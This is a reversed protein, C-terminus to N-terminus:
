GAMDESFVVKGYGAVEAEELARTARSLLEDQSTNDLKYAVVGASGSLNLKVGSTELELPTWAIRTQLKEMTEKASVGSVDPLLFSFVGNSFHAMLDEERLYQKLLLAVRRLAENRIQPSSSNIVGMHDVNMVALSLPYTNRKARSMEEGLRQMFYRKNYVGTQEDIIGFGSVQETPTQIYTALFALGIGFVLGLIGGLVLNLPKNPRIASTPLKAQDLPELAFAEYRNKILNITEAGVQNTFDRVVRQESGQATIKLVTTGPLLQSQANLTKKIEPSLGLKAAALNKITESGAVEAYTSAIESRTSLLGFATLATKAEISSPVVLFTATAEYVPTQTFTLYVTATFTLLFTPVIIWWKRLLVRLYIKFEM